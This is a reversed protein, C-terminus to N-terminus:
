AIDFEELYLVTHSAVSNSATTVRVHLPTANVIVLEQVPVWFYGTQPHCRFTETVDGSNYTPEGSYTHYGTAQISRSDIANRKKMHVSSLATGTGATAHTRQIIEVVAPLDAATVGAFGIRVGKLVTLVGAAPIVGVHTLASTGTTISPPAITYELGQIQIM